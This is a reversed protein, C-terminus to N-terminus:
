GKMTQALIGPIQPIFKELGPRVFPNRKEIVAASGSGRREPGVATVAAAEDVSFKLGRKLPSPKMQLLPLEGASSAITRLVPRKDRHGARWDELDELYQERDEEPLESVRIKRARRLSRSIMTRLLGGSRYLYKKVKRGSERMVRDANWTTKVQAQVRTM